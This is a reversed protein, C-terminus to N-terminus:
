NLSFLHTNYRSRSSSVKMDGYQNRKPCNISQRNASPVAEVECVACGFKGNSNFLLSGSFHQWWEVTPVGDEKYEDFFHEDVPSVLKKFSGDKPIMVLAPKQQPSFRLGGDISADQKETMLNFLIKVLGKNDLLPLAELIAKNDATLVGENIQIIAQIETQFSDKCTCSSADAMAAVSATPAVGPKSQQHKSMFSRLFQLQALPTASSFHQAPYPTTCHLLFPTPPLM